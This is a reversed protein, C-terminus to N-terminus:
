ETESEEVSDSLPQFCCKAHGKSQDLHGRRLGLGAAGRM